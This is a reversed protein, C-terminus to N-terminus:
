YAGRELLGGRECQLCGEVREGEVFFCCLLYVTNFYIKTKNRINGVKMLNTEKKKKDLELKLIDIDM